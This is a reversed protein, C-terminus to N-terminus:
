EYVENNNWSARRTRIAHAGVLCLCVFLALGSLLSGVMFSLPMFKLEVVHSGQGVEVGLILGDVPLVPQSVGDVSARWGSDYSDSIALLSKGNANIKVKWFGPAQESIEPRSPDNCDLKPVNVGQEILAEEFANFQGKGGRLASALGDRDIGRAKCLQWVLGKFGKRELVYPLTPIDVLEGVGEGAPFITLPASHGDAAIAEVSKISLSANLSPDLTLEAKAPDASSNAILTEYWHGDVGPEQLSASVRARRHKVFQRVDARDYAWESTDIGARLASTPGGLALLNKDFFQISAVPAEDPTGVSCGLTSVVRLQDKAHDPPIVVRMTRRGGVGNCEGLAVPAGQREDAYWRVGLVDLLPANAAYTALGGNPDTGALTQRRQSVIPGYGVASSLGFVSNVNPLFPSLSLHQVTTTPLVRGPVSAMHEIFKRADGKLELLDAQTAAYRWEYFYGFSGLDLLLVVMAFGISAIGPKALLLLWAISAAVFIGLPILITPNAWFSPLALGVLSALQTLQPYTWAALVAVTGLFLPGIWKVVHHERRQERSELLAATGYGALVATSFLLVIGFRAQCRFRGLVPLKAVLTGLPTHAGLTCALAVVAAGVWFWQNRDARWASMASLALLLPLIGVYVTLETLNWPGFYPLASAMSGNYYYPFFILFLSRWDLSYSNFDAITWNERVGQSVTDIFPLWSVASLLAGIVFITGVRVIFICSRKATSSRWISVGEHVSYAAALMLCYISAQPHGGLLCLSVAFAGTIIWFPGRCDRTSAISWLILPGWCAAHVIGVHGLHAMMFGGNGAVLAAVVAAPTSRTLRLVLGFMGVATVVYCSIVFWNYYPILLRPLYWLQTQLDGIAPYGAFTKDSWIEGFHSLFNPYYQLIGDAFALIQRHIFISSFYFGYFVCFGATLFIWRMAFPLKATGTKPALNSM